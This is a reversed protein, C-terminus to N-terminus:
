VLVALVTPGRLGRGRPLLTSAGAIPAGDLASTFWAILQTGMAKVTVVADTVLVLDRKKGKVGAATAEVLYAGASLKDPWHLAESGPLHKGQDGTQKTWSALKQGKSLDIRHVPDGGDDDDDGQSKPKKPM